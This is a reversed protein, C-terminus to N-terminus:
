YHTHSYFSHLCFHHNHMMTHKLSEISVTMWEASAKAGTPYRRKVRMCVSSLLSTRNWKFVDVCKMQGRICAQSSLVLPKKCYLKPLHEKQASSTHLSPTARPVHIQGSGDRYPCRPETCSAKRHICAIVGGGWGSPPAQLLAVSNSLRWRWCFFLSYHSNCVQASESRTEWMSQCLWFHLIPSHARTDYREWEAWIWINCLIEM